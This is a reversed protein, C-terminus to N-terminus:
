RRVSAPPASSTRRARDSFPTIATRATRCDPEQGGDDPAPRLRRPFVLLAAAPLPRRGGDGHQPDAPERHRARRRAAGSVARSHDPEGLLEDITVTAGIRLATRRPQSDGVAGQHTKINVVRKPAYVYDKMLSILDTGGALVAAESWQSGLLALAEQLTAPNAYEFTEMVREERGPGDAGSVTDAACRSACASRM